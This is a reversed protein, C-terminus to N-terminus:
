RSSLLLFESVTAQALSVVESAAPDFLMVVVFSGSLVNSVSSSSSDSMSLSGSSLATNTCVGFFLCFDDGISFRCSDSAFRRNWFREDLSVDEKSVINNDEDESEDHPPLLVTIVSEDHQQLVPDDVFSEGSLDDLEDGITFCFFNGIKM